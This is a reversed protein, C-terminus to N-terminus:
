QGPEQENPVYQLHTEIKQSSSLCIELRNRNQPFTIYWCKQLKLGNQEATLMVVILPTHGLFMVDGRSRM